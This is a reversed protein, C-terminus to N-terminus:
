LENVELQDLHSQIQECLQHLVERPPITNNLHFVSVHDRRGISSLIEEKNDRFMKLRREIKSKDIDEVRKDLKVLKGDKAEIPCYGPNPNEDFQRVQHGCDPCISRGPLREWIDEEPVDMFLPIHVDGPRLFVERTADGQAKTRPFGDLIFGNDCDEEVLRKAIMGIPVEDPLYDPYHHEDYTQVIWGLKSKARFEDRFIDGASINPIDFLKSLMEGQTGKGSGSTGILNLIFRRQENFIIEKDGKRLILTAVQQTKELLSTTQSVKQWLRNGYVIDFVEDQGKLLPLLKFAHISVWEYKSHEKPDLVVIPRENLKAHFIHVVYDWGPIRAYRHGLYQVEGPMLELQTEEKLERLVTQIPEEGKEAKGGPIGWTHSQDEKHCRQLLLLYKDYELFITSIQTKLKFDPFSEATKALVPATMMFNGGQILKQFSNQFSYSNISEEIKLMFTQYLTEALQKSQSSSQKQLELAAWVITEFFIFPRFFIIKELALSDSTPYFKLVVDPDCQAIVSLHSLDWMPDNFGALEWDHLYLNGNEYFFNEPSPDNHCPVSQFHYSPIKSFLDNLQNALKHVEIPLSFGDRAVIELTAQFRSFPQFKSSIPVDKSDHLLHLLKLARQLGDIDQLDYASLSKGSLFRTLLYGKDIDYDKVEILSIQKNRAWALVELEQSRNSIKNSVDQPVRLVWLDNKSFERILFNSNSFSQLPKIVEFNEKFSKKLFEQFTKQNEEKGTSGLSLVFGQTMQIMFFLITISIYKLRNM